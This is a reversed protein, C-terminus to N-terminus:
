NTLWRGSLGQANRLESGCGGNNQPDFGRDSPLSNELLIVDEGLFDNLKLVTDGIPWCTHNELLPIGARM